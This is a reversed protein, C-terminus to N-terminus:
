YLGREIEHLNVLCECLALEEPTGKGTVCRKILRTIIDVVQVFDCCVSDVLTIVPTPRLKFNGKLYQELDRRQADTMGWRDIVIDTADGWPHAAVHKELLMRLQFHRFKAATGPNLHPGGNARYKAKTLWIGTVAVHGDDSMHGLPALLRQTGDGETMTKDAWRGAKFEKKVLTHYRFATLHERIAHLAEEDAHLAVLIYVPSGGPGPDGSEDIFVFEKDDAM